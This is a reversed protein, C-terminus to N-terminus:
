VKALDPIYGTMREIIASRPVREEALQRMRLDIAAAIQRCAVVPKTQQPAKTRGPMPIAGSHIGAALSALIRTYRHFGLFKRTLQDVDGPQASSLLQEFAPMHDAMAVMIAMDDKGTRILKQMRADIKTAIWLQESTLAM